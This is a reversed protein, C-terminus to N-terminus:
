TMRRFPKLLLEAESAYTAPHDGHVMSTSLSQVSTATAGRLLAQSIAFLIAAQTVQPPLATLVTGAPHAFSLTGALTLTGPGSVASASLVSGTEQNGADEIRGFAGPGGPVAPGWGTCDDVTITGAGAAAAATLSCHPFGALYTLQLVQGERGNQWSVYGAGIMVSQGSEGADGATVAGYIGPSPQVVLFSAAPIAITVLPPNAPAVTGSLVTLIPKRSLLVRAAGTSPMLTVRYNPSLFTETVQTARLTQNVEADVMNTARRCINWQEAIQQAPTSNRAPITSWSIGTAANTLIEPTIYPAPFQQAM